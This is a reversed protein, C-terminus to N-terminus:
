FDFFRILHFIKLAANCILIDPEFDKADVRWAAKKNSLVSRANLVFAFVAFYNKELDSAQTIFAALSITKTLALAAYRYKGVRM